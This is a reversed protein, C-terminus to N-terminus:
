RSVGILNNLVTDFNKTIKKGGKLLIYDIDQFNLSDLELMVEKQTGKFEEGENFDKFNTHYNYSFLFDKDKWLQSFDVKISSLKPTVKFVCLCLPNRKTSTFNYRLYDTIVTKSSTWSEYKRCQLGDKSLLNKIDKTNLEIARYCTIPKTYTPRPLLKIISELKSLLYKASSGYNQWECLTDIDKFSYKIYSPDKSISIKM